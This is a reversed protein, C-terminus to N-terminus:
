SPLASPTLEVTMELLLTSPLPNLHEIFTVHFLNFIKGM